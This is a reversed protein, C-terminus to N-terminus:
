KQSLLQPPPLRSFWCFTSKTKTKSAGDPMWLQLAAAFNVKTDDDVTLWLLHEPQQRSQTLDPFSCTQSTHATCICQGAKSSPGQQLLIACLECCHSDQDEQMQTGFM